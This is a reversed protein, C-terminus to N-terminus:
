SNSRNFSLVCKTQGKDSSEMYYGYRFNQDSYNIIIQNQGNEVSVKEQMM